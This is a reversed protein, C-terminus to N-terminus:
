APPMTRTQLGFKRSPSPDTVPSLQDPDEDIHDKSDTGSTQRSDPSIKARPLKRILLCIERYYSISGSRHDDQDHVDIGMGSFGRLYSQLVILLELRIYMYKYQGKQLAYVKVVHLLM